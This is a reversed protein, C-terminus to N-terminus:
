AEGTKRRPPSTRRLLYSVGMIASLLFAAGVVWLIIGSAGRANALALVLILMTVYTGGVFLLASASLTNNKKHAVTDFPHM